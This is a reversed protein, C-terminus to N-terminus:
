GNPHHVKFDDRELRFVWCDDEGIRRKEVFRFGMKGYFGHAKTNTELPDTLVAKVRKDSFCRQLALRMMKTGYGKGLEEKKGIWIDIACLNGAVQGWYHSEERAPDIIQIFGVPRGETEAILQERWDPNRSLEKEWDWDDNPDSEIVHLQKDWHRLLKSDSLEANRLIMEVIACNYSIYGLGPRSKKNILWLTQNKFGDM